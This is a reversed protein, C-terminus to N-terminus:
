AVLTARGLIDNYVSNVQVIFFNINVQVQRPATGFTVPIETTGVVHIPDNIFGYLLFKHGVKMKRGELDM